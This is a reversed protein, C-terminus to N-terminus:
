FFVILLCSTLTEGSQLRRPQTFSLLVTVHKMNACADIQTFVMLLKNSSVEHKGNMDTIQVAAVIATNM